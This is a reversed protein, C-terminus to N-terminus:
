QHALTVAAKLSRAQMVVWVKQKLRRIAAVNPDVVVILKVVQRVGGFEAESDQSSTVVEIHKV